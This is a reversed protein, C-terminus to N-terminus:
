TDGRALMLDYDLVPETTIDGIGTVSVNSDIAVPKAVSEFLSRCQRELCWAYGCDRHKKWLCFAPGAIGDIFTPRHVQISHHDSFDLVILYTDTTYHALGLRDRVRNANTSSPTAPKLEPLQNSETLWACERKGRVAGRHQLCLIAPNIEIETRVETLNDPSIPRRLNHRVYSELNTVHSLPVARSIFPGRCMAGKMRRDLETLEEIGAGALSANLYIDLMAIDIQGFSLEIAYNEQLCEHNVTFM